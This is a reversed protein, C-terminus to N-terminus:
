CRKTAGREHWTDILFTCTRYSSVVERGSLGKVNPRVALDIETSVTFSCLSFTNTSRALLGLM